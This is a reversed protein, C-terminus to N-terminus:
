APQNPIRRIAPATDRILANLDAMQKILAKRFQEYQAENHDVIGEHMMELFWSIADMKRFKVIECLYKKECLELSIGSLEYQSEIFSSCTGNAIKELFEDFFSFSICCALDWLRIDYRMLDFDILYFQNKSKIVNGAHTDGHVVQKPLSDYIKEFESSAYFDSLVIIKEWADTEFLSPDM